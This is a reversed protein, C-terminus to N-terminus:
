GASGGSEKLYRAYEKRIDAEAMGPNLELYKRRVAEPVDVDEGAGAKGAGIPTMHSKGAAQIRARQEAAASRLQFLRASHIGTYAQVLSAGGAVMGMMVRFNVPDRAQLDELSTLKAGPDLENIEKIQESYWDMAAKRQAEVERAQAQQTIERAAVVAPDSAVLEQVMASIISPDVGAERLADERMQRQTQAVDEQYARQYDEYQAQTWIPQKTYPNTKGRVAPPAWLVGDGSQPQFPAQGGPQGQQPIAPPQPEADQAPPTGAPQPATDQAPAPQPPQEGGEPETTDLEPVNGEATSPDHLQGDGEQGDGQGDVEVPDTIQGEGEAPPKMGVGEFIEAETMSM